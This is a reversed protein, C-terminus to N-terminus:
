IRGFPEFRGCPKEGPASSPRLVSFDPSRTLQGKWWRWNATMLMFTIPAIGSAIINTRLFKISLRSSKKGRGDLPPLNKKKKTLHQFHIQHLVSVSNNPRKLIIFSEVFAAKKVLRASTLNRMSMYSWTMSSQKFAISRTGDERIVM